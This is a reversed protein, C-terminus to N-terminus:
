NFSYLDSIVSFSIRQVVVDAANDKRCTVQFWIVLILLKLLSLMSTFCAMVVCLVILFMDGLCWHGYSIRLVVSYYSTM